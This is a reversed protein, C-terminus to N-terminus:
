IRIIIILGRGKQESADIDHNLIDFSIWQHLLVSDKIIGREPSAVNRVPQHKEQGKKLTIEM